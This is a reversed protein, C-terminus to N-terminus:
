VDAYVWHKGCSSKARGSLCNSIATVCVSYDNAAERMSPYVTGTEVCKIKLRRKSSVRENRTGYGCNYQHTCWELNDVRNNHKNEDIHNVDSYGNPNELFTEAVLRHLYVTHTSHSSKWNFRLYGNGNDCPELYTYEKGYVKGSNYKTRVRGLNSVEYLVNFGYVERWEEKM